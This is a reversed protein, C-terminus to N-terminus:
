TSIRFINHTFRQIIQYFIYRTILYLKIFFLIFFEVSGLYVGDQIVPAVGRVVLGARGLEIAVLPSKSQKVAVITKRFSSLDDGYKQPKWARLFSHINADHIHVKINKYNTKARFEDSITKLGNIAISRDNEQLAKVVSYNKALNIANTIGINYKSAIAEKYVSRLNHNEKEYASKKMNEVSYFFDGLVYLFGFTISFILPFYLKQSIKLNKM